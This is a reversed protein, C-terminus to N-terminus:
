FWSLMYDDKLKFCIKQITESQIKISAEYETWFQYFLDKNDSNINYRELLAKFDREKMYEVDLGLPMIDFAVAVINNSHSINFCLNANKFKPKNNEVVIETDEINYFTKAVEKALHRGLASQLKKKEKYETDKIEIYFIKM